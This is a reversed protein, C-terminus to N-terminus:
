LREYLAAPGPGFVAGMRGEGADVAEKAEGLLLVDNGRLYESMDKADLLWANPNPSSTMSCDTASSFSSSSASASTLPSPPCSLMRDSISRASLDSRSVTLTTHQEGGICRSPQQHLEDRWTSRGARERLAEDLLLESSGTM